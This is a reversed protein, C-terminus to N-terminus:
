AAEEQEIPPEHVAGEITLEGEKVVDCVIERNVGLFRDGDDIEDPVHSQEEIDEAEEGIRLFEYALGDEEAEQLLAHWAKVDDYDPYWKWSDGSLDLVEIQTYRYLMTRGGNADQPQAATAEHDYTRLTTRYRTLDDKFHKLPGDGNLLHRVILAQLKNPDGYILSRVQSRYGM